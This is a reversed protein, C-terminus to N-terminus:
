VLVQENLMVTNNDLKIHNMRCQEGSTEICWFTQQTVSHAWFGRYLDTKSHKASISPKTYQSALYPISPVAILTYWSCAWVTERQKGLGRKLDRFWWGCTYSCWIYVHLCANTREGHNIESVCFFFFGSGFNATSLLQVQLSLLAKHQHM